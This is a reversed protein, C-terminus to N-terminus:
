PRIELVHTATVCCGPNSVFVQASVVSNPPVNGPIPAPIRLEGRADSQVPIVLLPNIGLDATCVLLPSVLTVGLGVFGPQNPRADWLALAFSANGPSPWGQAGFNLSGACATPTPRGIVRVGQNLGWLHAIFGDRGGQNTLYPGGPAPFTPTATSGCLWIGGAQDSEVDAVYSDGGTGILTSYVLDANGNGGPHVRSVFGPSTLTAPTTELFAGPTTPYALGCWGGVTAMGRSDVFINGAGEWETGSIFTSYAVQNAGSGGMDIWTMWVDNHNIAGSTGVFTPNYCGPTVRLNPSYTWGAVVFQGPRTPDFAICEPGENAQGGFLSGYVLQATGTQSPDFLALFADAGGLNAAQVPNATPVMSSWSSGSILMRGAADVDLGMTAMDYYFPNLSDYPWGENGTGGFYSLYTIATASQDLTAV